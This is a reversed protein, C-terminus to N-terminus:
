LEPTPKAAPESTRLYAAVELGLDDHSSYLTFEPGPFQERVGWSVLLDVVGPPPREPNIFGAPSMRSDLEFFKAQPWLSRLLYQRRSVEAVNQRARDSVVIVCNRVPPLRNLRVRLRQLERDAQNAQPLKAVALRLDVPLVVILVALLVARRRMDQEGAWYLAAILSIAAVAFLGGAVPVSWAHHDALHGSILELCAATVAALSAVWPLRRELIATIGEAALLWVSLQVLWYWPGRGAAPGALAWGTFAAGTLVLLVFKRETRITQPVMTLSWLGTLALGGWPLTQGLLDPLDPWGVPLPQGSAPAPGLAFWPMWFGPSMRLGMWVTWWGGLAFGAAGILVVDLMAPAFSPEDDPNAPTWRVGATWIAIIIWTWLALPGGALWSFGLLLASSVGNWLTRARLRAQWQRLTLLVLLLALPEIGPQQSFELLVGQCAVLITGILALRAGDLAQLLLFVSGILLATAAMAVASRSGDRHSGFIRMCGATLWTMAPPQTRWRNAPATRGPDLVEGISGARLCSLARLSWEAGPSTLPRTQFAFLAPLVALLVVLPRMVSAFRLIPILPQPESTAWRVLEGDDVAVAAGSLSLAGSGTATVGGSEMLAAQLRQFVTM